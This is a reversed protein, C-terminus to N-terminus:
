TKFNQQLWFSRLVVPLARKTSVTEVPAVLDGTNGARKSVRRVGPRELGTLTQWDAFFRTRAQSLDRLKAADSAKAILEDIRAIHSELRVIQPNQGNTQELKGNTAPPNPAELKANRRAEGSKMGMLRAIEPTFRYQVPPMNRRVPPQETTM